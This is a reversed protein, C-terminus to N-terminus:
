LTKGGDEEKEKRGKKAFKQNNKENIWLMEKEYEATFLGNFSVREWLNSM